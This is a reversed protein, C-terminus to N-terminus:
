CCKSQRFLVKIQRTPLYYSDRFMKRYSKKRHIADTNCLWDYGYFYQGEQRYDVYVAEVEIKDLDSQFNYIGRKWLEYVKEWVIWVWEAM